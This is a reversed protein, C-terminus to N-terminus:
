DEDDAGEIKRQRKIRWNTKTKGKRLLVIWTILGGIVLGGLISGLVIMWTRSGTPEPANFIAFSGDPSVWSNYVFPTKGDDGLVVEWTNNTTNFAYANINLGITGKQNDIILPSYKFRWLPHTADQGAHNPDIFSPTSTISLIAGTGHGNALTTTEPTSIYDDIRDIGNNQHWSTIKGGADVSDVSISWDIGHVTGTLIDNVQYGSTGSTLSDNNININCMWLYFLDYTHGPTTSPTLWDWQNAHPQNASPDDQYVSPYIPPLVQL